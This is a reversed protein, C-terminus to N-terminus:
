YCYWDVINAFPKGGLYAELAKMGKDITVLNSAYCDIEGEIPHHIVITESKARDVLENCSIKIDEEDSEPVYFLITGEGMGYAVEMSGHNEFGVIAFQIPEAAQGLLKHIVALVEDKSDVQEKTENYIISYM